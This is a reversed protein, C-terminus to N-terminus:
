SVEKYAGPKKKLFQSLTKPDKPDAGQSCADIINVALQQYRDLTKGKNIKLFKKLALGYEEATSDRLTHQLTPDADGDGLWHLSAGEIFRNFTTQGVITIPHLDPFRACADLVTQAHYKFFTGILSDAMIGMRALEYADLIGIRKQFEAADRLHQLSM